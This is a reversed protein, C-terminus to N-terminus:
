KRGADAQGAPEPAATSAAANRETLTALLGMMAAIIVPGLVVGIFGFAAVGGLIGLLILLGNMAATGSLIMPRLVNDLMTIVGVGYCVLVLGRIWHGELALMLAAPLWVLSAGVVPILSCFLMLAGWFIPSGIGLIAFIVAGAAGQALGIVLSAAIGAAILDRTERILREQRTASLPLLGRVLGPMQSGDRLFFFLACFTIVTKFGFSLVHQVMGATQATLDQLANSAWQAAHSRLEAIPPLPVRQQVWSWYHQVRQLNEVRGLADQAAGVAAAAQVGLKWIIWTVLLAALLAGLVTVVLAARTASWHRHQLRACLPWLCLALVGAWILPILFPQMIQYALYTLVAVYVYFLLEPLREGNSDSV